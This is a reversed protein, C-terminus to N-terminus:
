WTVVSDIQPNFSNTPAPSLTFMGQGDELETIVTPGIIAEIHTLEIPASGSGPATLHFTITVLSGSSTSIIPTSSSLEIVIQGTAQDIIPVISWGGGALLSGAHVDAASVTFDNADYALVLQAKILGTSGAPHADDINVPVTVTGDAGVQLSSPLSVSVVRYPLQFFVGSPIPPNALNGTALGVGAENAQLAADAPVFGSGDTDAVITPDVLPYAAFGTDTQLVVRTTLVADNGSYAGNGDADGAYAVLHVADSTTVFTFINPNNIGVNDLHLLDNARYPMLGHLGSPVTALIYGIPTQSGAPLAPGNYQVVAQGPTCSKLMSFNAGRVGTVTLLNPDFYLTAYAVDVGGPSDLYIPFGGGAQNQGPASLAQGPGDATAPVWLVDEGTPGYFTTTYDGSGATGTGLGDLFGGGSNLAQFGSARVIVTYPGGALIPSDTNAELTTNTAVFAITNTGLYPSADILLSGAVYAAKDNLNGPDTTVIVSPAPAGAGYLAPTVSNILFPANFQLSIGTTTSIFSGPVVQLPLISFAASNLGTYRAPVVASLTYSGLAALALNSFTAVGNHVAAAITSRATFSGPGSAIGLAVNDRNDSTVVNGYGDEVQVTVPPLADGTPTDAPQQGFALKVPAGPAVTVAPASGTFAGSSDSVSVTYSGANQLTALFFGQGHSNITVPTPFSAAGSSPSITVTVTSPGSYSTIPDGLWDAAQVGVVFGSGAVATAPMTLVYQSLPGPNITVTYNQSASDGVGNVVTITFNYTGTASPTGSLVGSPDLTLGPPLTGTASFTESSSVDKVNITQSYGQSVVWNPLSTTTISPPPSVAFLTGDSDAGGSRTVGFLIGSSNEVLAFPYAGDSGDFSDLITLVGSRKQVEFVTGLNNAGGYEATGFLNGSSDIFLAAAGNGQYPIGVSHNGSFSGLTTITRSGKPLEFVTGENSTGGYYTVGFLDGASDAALAVPQEGTTPLSALTTLSYTPVTSFINTSANKQLEFVTGGGNAGGAATAGFLDGSSDAVLTAEPLSGSPASNAQMNAGFSALNILAHSGAEVEFVTGAAGQGFAGGSWTTGFLNGSSDEIVGGYPVTGNSGDFSALTTVAGSGAAVEYVTGLSAPGNSETAGFLNGSSDEVLNGYPGVGGGGFFALPIFSGSGPSLKFITGSDAPGGGGTAGILNGSSDEILSNPGAGDTGNFSVLTLLAPVCRPELQELCPRARRPRRSPGTPGPPRGLLKGLWYPAYM